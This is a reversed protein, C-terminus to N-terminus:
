LEWSNTLPGLCKVYERPLPVYERPNQEKEM